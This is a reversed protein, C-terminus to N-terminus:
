CQYVDFRIIKGAKAYTARPTKLLAAQKNDRKVIIKKLCHAQCLTFLAAYDSAACPAAYNILLEILQMDKKALASKNDAFMPDLYIVEFQERELSAVYDHAGAYVVKLHPLLSKFEACLYNLIVALYPNNEVMTVQYGLMSLVLSDRGLGAMLDLARVGTSAKLNIAQVLLERQLSRQRKYIFDGYFLKFNLPKFQPTYLWLGDGALCLCLQQPDNNLGYILQIEPIQRTLAVLDPALDAQTYYIQM